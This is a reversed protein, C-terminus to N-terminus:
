RDSDPPFCVHPPSGRETAISGSASRPKNPGRSQHALTLGRLLELLGGDSAFRQSKSKRCANEALFPTTLPWTTLVGLSVEAMLCCPNEKPGFDRELTMAAPTMPATRSRATAQAAMTQLRGASIRMAKALESAPGDPGAPRSLKTAVLSPMSSTFALPPILPRGM